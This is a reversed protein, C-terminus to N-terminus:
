SVVLLFMDEFLAYGWCAVKACGLLVVCAEM